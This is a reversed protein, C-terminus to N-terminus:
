INRRPLLVAWRAGFCVGTRDNLELIADLLTANLPLDTVLGDSTIPTTTTSM